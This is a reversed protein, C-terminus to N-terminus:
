CLHLTGGNKVQTRESLGLTKKREAARLNSQILLRNVTVNM